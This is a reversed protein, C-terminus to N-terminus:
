CVAAPVPPAPLRCGAPSCVLYEGKGAPDALMNVHVCQIDVRYRDRLLGVAALLEFDFAEAVLILRQRLNIESSSGWVATELFGGLQGAQEETLRDLFDPLRWNVTLALCALARGLMSPDSGSQFVIAVASGRKDLALM